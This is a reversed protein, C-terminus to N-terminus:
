PGRWQQTVRGVCDYLILATDKPALVDLCRGSAPNRLTGDPQARWIQSRASGCTMLVVRSGHATSNGAVTM